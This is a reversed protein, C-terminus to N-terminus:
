RCTRHMSSAGTAEHTRSPPADGVGLSAFVGGKVLNSADQGNRIDFRWVRGGIDAAYMRDAFGDGTLDVARVDGPISNTM